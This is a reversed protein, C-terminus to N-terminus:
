AAQPRAARAARAWIACLEGISPTVGFFRRINRLTQEHDEALYAACGDEAVVVYYDRV